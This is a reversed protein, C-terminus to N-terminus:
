GAPDATRLVTKGSLRGARGDGVVGPAESLPVTREVPPRFGGRELATLLRALLEARPQLDVNVTRVGPVTGSAYVTSAAVGGPRVLRAWREFAPGSSVLDLLGDVGAPHLQRVSAVPDALTADVTEGAGIARLRAHSAPRAVAVVRVRAAAAIPVVFSGVGGSAGLLLLSQGPGLALTDLADLATMGATPLAAAEEGSLADPTAMLANSEPVTAFEAYTGRGVPDHLFEGFLRDGVHWRHVGPGIRDVTGAGDVGLVLPM